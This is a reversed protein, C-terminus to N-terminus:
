DEASVAEEAVKAHQKVLADKTTIESQASSLKENLVKVEEDLVKVKEESEILHAYTEPSVQVFKPAKDEQDAQNSNQSADTNSSKDSSKKKWPWSRRDM